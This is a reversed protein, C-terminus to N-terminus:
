APRRAAAPRDGARSATPAAATRGTRNVMPGSRGVVLQAVHLLQQAALSGEPSRACTSRAPVRRASIGRSSFACTRQSSWAGRGGGPRRDSFWRVAGDRRVDLARDPLAIMALAREHAVPMPALLALQDPEIVDPLRVGHRRFAVASLRRSRHRAACGTRPRPAREAASNMRVFSDRCLLARNRSRRGKGSCRRVVDASREGAGPNGAADRPWEERPRDHYFSGNGDPDRLYLAESVGHDVGASGFAGACVAACAWRRARRTSSRSAISGRHSARRPLAAWSSQRTNLAIHHHYGGASVHVRGAAAAAHARAGARRVTFRWRASSTPSRSIPTASEPRRPRDPTRRSAEDSAEHERGASSSRGHDLVDGPHRLDAHGGSGGPGVASSAVRRRRPRPLRTVESAEPPGAAWRAAGGGRREGLAQRRPDAVLGGPVGASYVVWPVWGAKTERDVATAWAFSRAYHGSLPVLRQGLVTSLQRDRHGIDEPECGGSWGGSSSPRSRWWRWRSGSGLPQCEGTRLPRVGARRRLRLVAAGAACRCTAAAVERWTRRTDPEGDWTLAREACKSTPSRPAGSRWGPAGLWYWADGRTLTLSPPHATSDAGPGRCPRRAPASSLGYGAGDAGTTSSRHARPAFGLRSRNMVAGCRVPPPGALLGNGAAYRGSLPAPELGMTLSVIVVMARARNRCTESRCRPARTGTAAPRDGRARRRSWRVTSRLPATRWAISRPTSAIRRGPSRNSRRPCRRRSGPAEREPAKSTVPQGGTDDGGAVVVGAGLLAQAPVLASSSARPIRQGACTVHERRRRQLGRLTGRGGLTRTDPGSNRRWRPTAPAGAPGRRPEGASGATSGCRSRAPARGRSARLALARRALLHRCGERRRLRHRAREGVVRDAVVM